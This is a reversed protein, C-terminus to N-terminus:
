QNGGKKKKHTLLYVLSVKIKTPGIYTHRNTQWPHNWVKIDGYRTGSVYNYKKYNTRTYGLGAAYEMRWNKAIRHAYGASFGTAIFFEGQIGKRSFPQLDFKGGGAYLGFNWGTLVEKDPRSQLWYKAEVNGSLLQLTLNRGHNRWWPFILEGALSWRKGVPVEIEVNLATAIDYLLNSKIAFLPRTQLSDTNTNVYSDAKQQEQPFAQIWASLCITLSLFLKKM